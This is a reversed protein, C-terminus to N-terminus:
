VFLKLFNLENQKYVPKILSGIKVIAGGVGLQTQTRRTNRMNRPRPAPLLLASVSAM